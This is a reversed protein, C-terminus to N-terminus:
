YRNPRNQEIDPVVSVIRLKVDETNHWWNHMRKYIEKYEESMLDFDKANNMITGFNKNSNLVNRTLQGKLQKSLKFEAFESVEKKLKLPDIKGVIRKKLIELAKEETILYHKPLGPILEESSPSTRYQPYNEGHVDHHPPTQPFPASFMQQSVQRQAEPWTHFNATHEPQGTLSPQGQFPGSTDPMQPQRRGTPRNGRRSNVTPPNGQPFYPSLQRQGPHQGMPGTGPPFRVPGGVSTAPAQHILPNQPPFQYDPAMNQPQYEGPVTEPQYPQMHLERLFSHQPNPFGDPQNQEMGGPQTDPNRPDMNAMPQQVNPLAWQDGQGPQDNPNRPHQHMNPAVIQSQAPWQQAGLHPNWPPHLHEIPLPSTRNQPPNRRNSRRQEPQDNPHQPYM